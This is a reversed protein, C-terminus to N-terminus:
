WAANASAPLRSAIAATQLPTRHQDRLAQRASREHQTQAGAQRTSCTATSNEIRPRPPLVSDQKPVRAATQKTIVLQLMASTWCAAHNVFWVYPSYQRLLPWCGILLLMPLDAAMVFLVGYGALGLKRHVALRLERQREDLKDVNGLLADRILLVNWVYLGGVLFFVATGAILFV